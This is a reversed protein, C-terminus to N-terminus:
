FRWRFTARVGSDDRGTADRGSYGEIGWAHDEGTQEIGAATSRAGDSSAQGRVYAAWEDQRYRLQGGAADRGGHVDRDRQLWGSVGMHETDYSAALRSQSRDGLDHHTGTLRMRESPGLRQEFTGTLRWSDDTAYYDGLVEATTGGSAYRYGVRIQEAALEMTRGLDVGAILSHGGGLQLRGDVMGIKQNSVVWAVAGAVIASVVLIPNEDVFQRLVDGMDGAAAQGAIRKIEQDLLRVLEAAASAEGPEVQGNLYAEFQQTASGVAQQAVSQLEDESLHESLAEYLRPGLTAGLAESWTSAGGPTGRMQEQLAANGVSDQAGSRSAPRDSRTTPSSTTQQSAPQSHSPMGVQFLLIPRAVLGGCWGRIM